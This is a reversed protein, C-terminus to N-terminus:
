SNGDDSGISGEALSGHVSEPEFSLSKVHESSLPILVFQKPVHKKSICHCKADSYESKSVWVSSSIHKSKYNSSAACTPWDCLRASTVSIDLLVAISTDPNM